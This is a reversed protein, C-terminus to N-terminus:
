FIVFFETILMMISSDLDLPDAEGSSIGLMVLKYFLITSSSTSSPSSCVSPPSYM